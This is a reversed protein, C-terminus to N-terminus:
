TAPTNQAMWDVFGGHARSFEGLRRAAGPRKGHALLWRARELAHDLSFLFTYMTGLTGGEGVGNLFTAKYDQGLWNHRRPDLRSGSPLNALATRLEDTKDILEDFARLADEREVDTAWTRARLRRLDALTAAFADVLEKIDSMGTPSSDPWQFTVILLLDVHYLDPYVESFTLRDEDNVVVAPYLDTTQRRAAYATDIAAEAADDLGEALAVAATDVAQRRDALVQLIREHDTRTYPM